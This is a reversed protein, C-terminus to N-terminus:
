NCTPQNIVYKSQNQLLVQLLIAGVSFPSNVCNDLMNILVYMAKRNYNSM